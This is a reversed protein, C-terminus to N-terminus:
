RISTVARAYRGGNRQALRQLRSSFELFAKEYLLAKERSCEVTRRLGTEGAPPKAAIAIREELQTIGVARVERHGLQAEAGVDALAAKALATPQHGVEAGEALAPGHLVHVVELRSGEIQKLM